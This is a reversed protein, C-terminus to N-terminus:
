EDEEQSTLSESEPEEELSELDHFDFYQYRSRVYHFDTQEEHQCASGDQSSSRKRRWRKYLLVLSIVALFGVFSAGTTWWWQSLDVQQCQIQAHTAELPVVVNSFHAHLEEQIEEEYLKRCVREEERGVKKTTSLPRQTGAGWVLQQSSVFLWDDQACPEDINIIEQSFFSVQCSQVFGAPGRFQGQQLMICTAALFSSVALTIWVVRTAAEITEQQKKMAM